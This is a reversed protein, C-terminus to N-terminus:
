KNQLRKIERNLSLRKDYLSQLRNLRSYTRGLKEFVVIQNTVEDVKGKLIRIRRTTTLYRRVIWLTLTALAGIGTLIIKWSAM